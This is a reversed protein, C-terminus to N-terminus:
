ALGAEGWVKRITKCYANAKSPWERATNLKCDKLSMVKGDVEISEEPEYDAVCRLDYAERLLDSLAATAVKLSDLAVSREKNTIVGKKVQKDLEQGVPKRVTTVLTNPLAKHKEKKWKPDLEGLNKRTVLYAAYYYRNFASRGFLDKVAIEKQTVAWDQLQEGVAKM